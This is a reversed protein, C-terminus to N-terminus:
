ELQCPIDGQFKVCNVLYAIAWKLTTNKTEYGGLCMDQTTVIIYVNSLFVTRDYDCECQAEYKAHLLGSILHQIPQAPDFNSQRQTLIKRTIDQIQFNSDCSRLGKNAHLVGM